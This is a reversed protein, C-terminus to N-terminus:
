PLISTSFDWLTEKLQLGKSNKLRPSPGTGAQKYQDTLSGPISDLPTTGQLSCPPWPTSTHRKLSPPLSHPPPCGVPM